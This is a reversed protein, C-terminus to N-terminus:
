LNGLWGYCKCLQGFVLGEWGGCLFCNGMIGKDVELLFLFFLVRCYMELNRYNSIKYGM